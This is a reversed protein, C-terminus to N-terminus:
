SNIVILLFATFNELDSYAWGSINIIIVWKTM